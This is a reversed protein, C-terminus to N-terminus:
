KFHFLDSHARSGRSPDLGLGLDKATPGVPVIGGPNLPFLQGFYSTRYGDVDVTERVGPLLYFDRMWARLNPMDAVRRSSCKFLTAYVADFRVITPFARVDSETVKDGHMFRSEGLRKELTELAEVVDVAARNHAAQNTSFGCRYVGNNLKTYLWDNLSDIDNALEPPRLQVSGEDYRSSKNPGNVSGLWEVDNLMRAIDASENNVAVKREADVMLPATCRGEYTYSKGSQLDYVERLDRARFVPDPRDSEFVWGGRSAREADDTMKVIRVRDELGRLAVTLSVRHCWPCANGLYLVYRGSVSPFRGVPDEAIAGDFAYKPRQYEGDRSQPALETMMTQWAARWGAKVGTVLAGQPIVPGLWNLLGLGSTDSAAHTVMARHRACRTQRARLAIGGSKVLSVRASISTMM